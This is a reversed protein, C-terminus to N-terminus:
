HLHSGNEVLSESGNSHEGSLRSGRGGLFVHEENEQRNQIDQDACADDVRGDSERDNVCETLRAILRPDLLTYRLGGGPEVLVFTTKQVHRVCRLASPSDAWLDSSRRPPFPP